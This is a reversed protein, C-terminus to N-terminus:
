LPSHQKQMHGWDGSQRYFSKGVAEWRPSYAKPCIDVVRGGSGVGLQWCRFYLLSEKGAVQGAKQSKLPSCGSGGHMGKLLM